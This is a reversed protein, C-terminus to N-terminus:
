VASRRSGRRASGDRGVFEGEIADVGGGDGPEEVPQSALRCLLAEVRLWRRAAILENKVQICDWSGARIAQQWSM